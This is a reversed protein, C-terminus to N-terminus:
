RRMARRVTGTHTPRTHSLVANEKKVKVWGWRVYWQNIVAAERRQWVGDERLSVQLGHSSTKRVTDVHEAAVGGGADDIVLHVWSAPFFVATTRVNPRVCRIGAAGSVTVRASFDSFRCCRTRLGSCSCGGVIGPLPRRRPATNKGVRFRGLSWWLRGRGRVEYFGRALSGM